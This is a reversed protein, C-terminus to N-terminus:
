KLIFVILKKLNTSTWIASLIRIAQGVIVAGELIRYCFALLLKELHRSLRSLRLNSTFVNNAFSSNTESIMETLVFVNFTTCEAHRAKLMSQCFTATLIEGSFLHLYNSFKEFRIMVMTARASKELSHEKERSDNFRKHRLAIHNAYM